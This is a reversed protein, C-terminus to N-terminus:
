QINYRFADLISPTISKALIKNLDMYDPMQALLNANSYPKNDIDYWAKREEMYRYFYLYANAKRAYQKVDININNEKIFDISRQECDHEVIICRKIM